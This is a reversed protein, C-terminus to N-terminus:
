GIASGSIQGLPASLKLFKHGASPGDKKNTKIFYSPWVVVRGSSEFRLARLSHLRM